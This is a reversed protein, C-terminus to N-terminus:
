FRYNLTVGFTRPPAFIVRDVDTIGAAFDAKTDAFFYYNNAFVVYNKDTLNKGWLQLDWDGKAPHYIVSGNVLGSIKTLPRAYVDQKNTPESYFPDTFKIDGRFELGAGGVMDVNYQGYFLVDNRPTDPIQNGTCSVGGATCNPFSKYRADTYAYNTGLQLGHFPRVSLELEAGKVEAEGANTEVFLTGILSKTQLNKTLADYFTLNVTVRRDFFENKTGIEYSTSTEPLLPTQARTQSTASETFGGSKFGQAVSAFLISDTRPKWQLVARPTFADFSADLKAAYAAGYSFSSNIHNTYGEKTIYTYRGGVTLAVQDTINWKVEGYPAITGVHIGQNLSAPRYCPNGGATNITNFQLTVDCGNATLTLDKKNHDLSGYLGLVYEIRKGSPSVLRFEQSLSAENNVNNSPWFIPTPRADVDDRWLGKLTHYGTISSVLGLPTTWGINLVSSFIDRRNIGNEDLYVTHPDTSQSATLSGPGVYKPADGYNNQHTYGVIATVDVTDTPKYTLSGRVSGVKEDNIRTNTVVNYDYGDRDKVSFALRGALQDSIQHNIFGRTEMDNYNGGTVSIMGHDDGFQPKQSTVQIAGGVVNRGFTTGQPGKLVAIQALDFFDSSYSAPGGYYVDDIFMGVPVDLAPSENSSAQGRINPTSQSSGKIPIFNAGAVKTFVDAFNQIRDATIMKPTLATISIPVEQVLEKRRTATVVVESDSTGGGAASAAAPAEAAPAATAAGAILAWVGAACLGSLASTAL